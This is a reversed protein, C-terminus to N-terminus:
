SPTPEMPLLTEVANPDRTFEVSVIRSHLVELVRFVGGNVSWTEGTEPMRGIRALLYGGLTRAQREDLSLDLEENVEWVEVRGSVTARNEDHVEIWLMEEEDPEDEISAGVLQELLDHLTVIGATGGYEDVVVALHLRAQRLQRLLSPLRTDKNVYLPQKLHQFPEAPLNLLIDKALLVGVIEDLNKEYVVVRSFPTDRLRSMLHERPMDLAIGDVETRPTMIDEATSEAFERVSDMMEVAGEEFVRVVGRVHPLLTLERMNRQYRIIRLSRQSLIAKGFGLLPHLPLTLLAWPWAGARLVALPRSLALNRVGTELCFSLCLLVLLSVLFGGFYPSEAWLMTGARASSVGCAIFFLSTAIWGLRQNHRALMAIDYNKRQFLIKPLEGHRRDDKMIRLSALIAGEILSSFLCGLFFVVTVIGYPLAM